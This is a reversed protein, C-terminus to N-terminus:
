AQMLSALLLRAKEWDRRVTRETVGMAEAISAETMGAFYRMEVVRALRQSVKELEELAAHVALVERDRAATPDPLATDLTVRAGEGGHRLAARERALDILITRMVRAAYSLFHNRDSVQVYGANHLRLYAEHVLTTTDFGTPRRGRNLRGRAIRRLDAYLTAYLRSEAEADGERAAHLLETVDM